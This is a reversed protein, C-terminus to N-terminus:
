ERIIEWTVAGVVAAIALKPLDDKVNAFFGPRAQGKYFDIQKNAEALQAHLSAEVRQVALLRENLLNNQEIQTNIIIELEEVEQEHQAELNDVISAVKEQVSDPLSEIVTNLSTRTSRAERRWRTANERATVAVQRLSDSKAIAISDIRVREAQISDHHTKLSDLVIENRKAEAEWLVRKKYQNVLGFAAALTVVVAVGSVITNIKL